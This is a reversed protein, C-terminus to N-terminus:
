EHVTATCGDIQQEDALETALLLLSLEQSM